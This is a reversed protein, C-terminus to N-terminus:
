AATGRDFQWRALGIERDGCARERAELVDLPAFLGAFRVGYPALLARDEQQTDPELMVADVILRNGQVGHRRCRAAHRMGRIARQLVPGSQIAIAPQGDRQTRQM